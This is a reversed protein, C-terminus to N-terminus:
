KTVAKKVMFRDILDASIVDKKANKALVNIIRAELFLISAFSSNVNQM